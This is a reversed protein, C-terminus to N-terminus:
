RLRVDTRRGHVVPVPKHLFLDQIVRPDGRCCDAAEKLERM